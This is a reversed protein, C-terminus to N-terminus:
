FLKHPLARPDPPVASGLARGVEASRQDLFEKAKARYDKTGSIRAGYIMTYANRPGLAMKVFNLEFRHTAPEEFAAVMYNFTVGGTGRMSKAMLIQGGSSKYTSMIGEALRDLDQLTRADPRDILTVMTTWNDVTEGSAVFEWMPHLKQNYSALRYSHNLFTLAPQGSQDKSTQTQACGCIATIALAARFLRKCKM